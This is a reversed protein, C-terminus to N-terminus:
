STLAVAVIIAILIVVLVTVCIIVCVKKKRAKKQSVVAAAMNDSAKVVYNVSNSVYSEINNVLEGQAEVEMALYTFMEHLEVISRELRKIETHRSEIDDLAQKTVQTERMLNATFVEQQGSELMEEM